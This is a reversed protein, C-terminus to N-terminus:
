SVKKYRYVSYHNATEYGLQSATMLANTHYEPPAVGSSGGGFNYYSFHKGDKAWSAFVFAHGDTTDDFVDGTQITKPTFGGRNDANMNKVHTFSGSSAIGNTNPDSSLHLAMDAFGSCDRRYERTHGVDWAEANTNYGIKRTYWDKMRTLIETKSITGGVSSDPSVTSVTTSAGPDPAAVAAATTATAGGVLALGLASGVVARTITTRM